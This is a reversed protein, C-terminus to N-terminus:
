PCRLHRRRALVTDAAVRVNVEATQGVVRPWANRPQVGGNGNCCRCCADNASRHQRFVEVAVQVVHLQVGGSGNRLRPRQGRPGRHLRFVLLAHLQAEVEVERVARTRERPQRPKASGTAGHRGASRPRWGGRGTAEAGRRQQWRGGALPRVRRREGAHSRAGRVTRALLTLAASLFVGAHVHGVCSM